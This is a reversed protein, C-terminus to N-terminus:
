SIKTESGIDDPDDPIQLLGLDPDDWGHIKAHTELTKLFVFLDEPTCDFREMTLEKIARSFLKRGEATTYNITGPITNAPSLAFPAAM